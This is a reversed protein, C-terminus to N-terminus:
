CSNKTQQNTPKQKGNKNIVRSIGSYDSLVWFTLEIKM